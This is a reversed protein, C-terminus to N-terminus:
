KGGPASYVYIFGVGNFNQTKTLKFGANSLWSSLNGRPDTLPSLYNFYLVTDKGVTAQSLSLDLKEPDSVLNTLPAAYTINPAYWKIPAFADSFAFLSVTKIQDFQEVFSSAGRWDERQSAPNIWFLINTLLLTVVVVSLNLFKLRGPLLCIGISILSSFAPVLYIYRWYGLVPTKLSVIAALILPALLWILFIRTVKSKLGIFILSLYYLSSIGGVLLYIQSTNLNVRGLSFKAPILLITKLDFDGSLASWGVLAKTLYQGGALQKLLTPIWPLFLIICCTTLIFFSKLFKKQFLYVYVLQAFLNFFAGYFCYINALTTLFFGSKSKRVIYYWSMVSLLANLSYMRLEQSYYVHLPNLALLLAGVLPLWSLTKSKLEVLILYVFWVTLVGFIVNPLRLFWESTIGLMLYLHLILYYLPPHFDGAIASFLQHIPLRAISLSAAEDLWFSQNLLILRIGLSVLLILYIM